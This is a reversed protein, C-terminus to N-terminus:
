LGNFFRRFLQKPDETSDPALTCARAVLYPRLNPATESRALLDACPRRHGPRDGGRLQAGACGFGMEAAAPPDLAVGAASCQVAKARERRAVHARAQGLQAVPDRAALAAVKAWLAQWARREDDPLRALAPEDRVGALHDHRQWSRVAAAAATR